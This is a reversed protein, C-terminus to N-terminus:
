KKEAGKTGCIMGDTRNLFWLCATRGRIQSSIGQGRQIIVSFRLSIKYKTTTNRHSMETKRDDSGKNPQQTGTPDM